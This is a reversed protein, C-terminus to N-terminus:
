KWILDNELLFKFYAVKKYNFVINLILYPPWVLVQELFEGEFVLM